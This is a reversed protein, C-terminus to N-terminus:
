KEFSRVTMSGEDMRIIHGRKRDATVYLDWHTQGGPNLIAGTTMSGTCDPDLTYTGQLKERGIKGGRNSSQKGTFKGAGDFVYVGYQVRQVGPDAAEMFGRGTFVYQGKLASVSCGKQAAWAGPASLAFAIVTLLRPLRTGMNITEGAVLRSASMIERPSAALCNRVNSRPADACYIL